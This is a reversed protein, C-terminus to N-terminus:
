RVWGPPIPVNDPIGSSPGPPLAAVVSTSGSLGENHRPHFECTTKECKSCTVVSGTERIRPQESNYRCHNCWTETKVYGGNKMAEVSKACYDYPVRAGCADCITADERDDVDIASYKVAYVKGNRRVLWGRYETLDGSPIRESEDGRFGEKYYSKLTSAPRIDSNLLTLATRMGRETQFYSAVMRMILLFDNPRIDLRADQCMQWVHDRMFQSYNPLRAELDQRTAM